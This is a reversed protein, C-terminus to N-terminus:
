KSNRAEKNAFYLDMKPAQTIFRVTSHKGDSNLLFAYAINLNLKM